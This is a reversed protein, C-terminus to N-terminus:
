FDTENLMKDGYDKRKGLLIIPEEEIIDYTVFFEENNDM